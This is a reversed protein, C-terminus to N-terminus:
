PIFQICLCVFARGYSLILFRRKRESLNQKQKRRTKWLISICSSINWLINWAHQCFFFLFKKKIDKKNKNKSCQQGSNSAEANKPRLLNREKKRDGFTRQGAIQVQPTNVFTQIVEARPKQKTQRTSGKKKDKRLAPHQPCINAKNADFTRIACLSQEPFVVAAALQTKM